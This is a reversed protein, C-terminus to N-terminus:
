LKRTLLSYNKVGFIFLLVFKIYSKFTFLRKNSIFKKVCGEYDNHSRLVYLLSFVQSEKIKKIKKENISGAILELEDLFSLQKNFNLLAMKKDKLRLTWSGEVGKRYLSMVQPIYIVDGKLSMLMRLAEDSGPFDGYEKISKTYEIRKMVLSSTHMSSLKKHECVWGGDFDALINDYNKGSAIDLTLTAHGSMVADPRKELLSVQQEIKSECFWFDDGECLAVYRGKLYSYSSKTAGRGQSYQNEKRIVPKIINPYKAAYSRVVESTGDTSADDHVVLEFPFSTKQTLFGLLADDIYEKHNFTICLISVIPINRDGVWQDIIDQEKPLKRRKFENIDFLRNGSM